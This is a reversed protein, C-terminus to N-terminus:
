GPVVHGGSGHEASRSSGLAEPSTGDGLPFGMDCSYEHNGVTALKGWTDRGAAPALKGWTDREAAPALKGWTDREAAPALKGWTDREAAPALKGWTDREGAPDAVPGAVGQHDHGPNSTAGDANM